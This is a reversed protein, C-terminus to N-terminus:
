AFFADFTQTGHDNWNKDNRIFIFSKKWATVLLYGAYVVIYIAFYM